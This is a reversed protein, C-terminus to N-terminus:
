IDSSSETETSIYREPHEMRDIAENVTNIWQADPSRGVHAYQIRENHLLNRILCAHSDKLNYM